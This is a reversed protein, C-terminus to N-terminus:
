VKVIFGFQKFYKKFKKTNKGIYIFAQGQLPASKTNGPAWYRIRKSPFCMMTSVTILHQFWKTETANNVLVIAESIDKNNVHYVLKDIFLGILSSSYPPNMWINGFWDQKLGDDSITYFTNAQVITNADVSSAPDLDINGMVGRVAEIYVAPTYWENNGSNHKVHATM